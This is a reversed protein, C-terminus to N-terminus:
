NNVYATTLEITAGFNYSFTSAAAGGGLVSVLYIGPDRIVLMKVHTANALRPFALLLTGSTEYTVGGDMSRFVTIESGASNNTPYIIKIPIFADFGATNAFSFTAFASQASAGSGAYTSIFAQQRNTVVTAV